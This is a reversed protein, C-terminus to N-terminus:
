GFTNRVAKVIGASPVAPVNAMKRYIQKRVIFVTFQKIIFWLNKACLYAILIIQSAVPFFDSSINNTVFIM